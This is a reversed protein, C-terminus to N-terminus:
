CKKINLIAINELEYVMMSIDYFKNCVYPEFRYGVDKFYWYHFSM